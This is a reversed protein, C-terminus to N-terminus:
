AYNSFDSPTAWKFFMCVLEEPTPISNTRQTSSKKKLINSIVNQPTITLDYLTPLSSSSLKSNMKDSCHLVAMEPIRILSLNLSLVSMSADHLPSNILLLNDHTKNWEVLQHLIETVTLQYELLAEEIGETQKSWQYLGSTCFASTCVSLVRAFGPYM